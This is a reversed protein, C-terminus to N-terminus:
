HTPSDWFLCSQEAQQVAQNQDDTFAISYFFGVTINPVLNHWQSHNVTAKSLNMAGHISDHMNSMIDYHDWM